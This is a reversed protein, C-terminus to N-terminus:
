RELLELVKLPEPREMYDENAAAFAIKEDRDIIYTAPVPLEWSDDGNM